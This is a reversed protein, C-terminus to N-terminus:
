GIEEDEDDKINLREAQKQPLEKIFNMIFDIRRNMTAGNGLLALTFITLILNWIIM